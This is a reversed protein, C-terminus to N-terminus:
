GAADVTIEHFGASPMGPTLNAWIADGSSSLKLVLAAGTKSELPLNGFSGSGSGSGGLYLNGSADVGIGHGSGSFNGTSAKVWILDGAPSYKACFIARGKGESKTVIDGFTAEGAVSGSVVIDGQPDIAIGHGYDYGVGGATRIWLLAGDPSYKAVFVDYDGRNPLTQGDVQADTSQFHGTVYANGAADSVVGYGRDILSGGLSRVWLFKGEKSVRALFFDTEGLGDRKLDGFSGDGNTEGALFVGGDPAFTVARTKDSKVGGGAAVWDFTPEAANTIALSSLFLASSALLTPLTRNM